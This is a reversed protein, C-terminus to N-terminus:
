FLEEQRLRDEAIKCYDPNIEIGISNRNLKKAAILTTGSGAFPDLILGGGSIDILWSMLHLPKEAPHGSPKIGSWKSRKIDPIGRNKISFGDKRILSVLEYSPRLGNCGGPGIWEKDWVLLSEIQNGIDFAAKTITPLSRWNCFQWIAGDYRLVRSCEQMWAAFWFAANTLDAWPNLKGSGASATTFNYPPDTVVLDIAGSPIGKMIELCDGCIIKNIYDDPWTM